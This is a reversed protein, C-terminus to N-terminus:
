PTTSPFRYESLRQFGARMERDAISLVLFAFAGLIAVVAFFGRKMVHGGNPQVPGSRQCERLDILGLLGDLYPETVPM